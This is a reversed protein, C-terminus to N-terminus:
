NILNLTREWYMDSKIVSPGDGACITHEETIDKRIFSNAGVITNDAIHTGKLVTCRCGLWVHDGIVVTENNNELIGNKNYIKHSDGDMVINYFSWMNDKGVVIHKYCLIKTYGSATFNDGLELTGNVAVWLAAGPAFSHMSSGHVIIKGEINIITPVPPTTDLDLLGFRVTGTRVKDTFEIAGCHMNVVKVNKHLLVPLRWAVKMPFYRFNFRLSKFLGIVGIDKLLRYLAKMYGKCLGIRVMM